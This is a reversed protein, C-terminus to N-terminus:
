LKLASMAQSMNYVPPRAAELSDRTDPHTLNNLYDEAGVARPLLDSVAIAKSPTVGCDAPAIIESHHYPYVPELFSVLSGSGILVARRGKDGYKQNAYELLFKHVAADISAISARVCEGREAAALCEEDNKALDEFGEKEVAKRHAEHSAKNYVAIKHQKPTLRVGYTIWIKEKMEDRVEKTYTKNGILYILADVVVSREGVNVVIPTKATVEFQVITACEKELLTDGDYGSYALAATIDPTLYSINTKHYAKIAESNFGGARFQQGNLLSDPLFLLEKGKGPHWASSWLTCCAVARMQPLVIEDNV